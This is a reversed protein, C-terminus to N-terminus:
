SWFRWWPRKKEEGRPVAKASVGQGEDEMRYLHFLGEAGSTGHEPDPDIWWRGELILGDPTLQGEYHVQHDKRQIGVLHGGVQYGGFSTGQYSKLFYVTQDTRRGRLISNPPLHSVYRIPGAPADPVMERLQAEIQEETETSLGAEASVESISYTRDPQGDYMFGCLRESTELLDATIPFEKGRQLYHGTWRGTLVLSSM